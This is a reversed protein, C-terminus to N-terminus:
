PTSTSGTLRNFHPQATRWTCITKALQWGKSSFGAEPLETIRVTERAAGRERDNESLDECDAALEADLGPAYYMDTREVDYTGPLFEEGGLPAPPQENVLV